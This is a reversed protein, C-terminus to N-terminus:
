MSIRGLEGACTFIFFIDLTRWLNRSEESCGITLHLRISFPAHPLASLLFIWFVAVESPLHAWALLVGAVAALCGPLMTWANLTENNLGFLTHWAAEL